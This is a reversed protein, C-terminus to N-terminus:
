VKFDNPVVIPRIFYVAFCNLFVDFISPELYQVRNEIIKKTFM